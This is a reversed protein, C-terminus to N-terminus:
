VRGPRMMRGRRQVFQNNQMMRERGNKAWLNQPKQQKAEEEQMYQLAAMIAAQIKKKKNKM